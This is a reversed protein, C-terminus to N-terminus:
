KQEVTEKKEFSELEPIDDEGGKTPFGKFNQLGGMQSLLTPLYEQMTKKEYKGNVVYTNGQMFIHGKPKTFHLVSSDEMMFSAEELDFPRVNNKKLVQQLKQEDVQSNHSVVKHKRRVSGKGGIVVDKTIKKLHEIKEKNVEFKHVAVPEKKPETKKVDKKETKQADKKPQEVKTEVKKPQEVVKPKEETKPVTKPATKSNNKKPPM